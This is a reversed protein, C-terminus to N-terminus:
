AAADKDVRVRVEGTLLVSMLASKLKSLVVLSDSERQVREDVVQFASAVAVQETMSPLAVPVGGLIETNLNLMTQGVAHENLWQIPIEHGFYTALFASDVVKRPRARLCGTGCLWGREHSRVLACRGIDGRRAFLVDGPLVRHHALDQARSEPVRAVTDASIRGAILDKPMVVPIGDPSYESAKLQSGFPGTQVGDPACLNALTVVEWGEPVQGIETQKFKKHRGPLGKTLLEAMMAKKVVQLQDIVVQSAEIADDVSSLIAAIKRQEPLPPILLGIGFIDDRSLGPILGAADARLRVRSAALIHSIFGANWRRPRIAALQRSICYAEDAVAFQGTGSGKITLLIDGKQCMVKPIRVYRSVIIRGDPFDSPGTLYPTGIPEVSCEEALVHQGSALEVDDGLVGTRWGEPTM